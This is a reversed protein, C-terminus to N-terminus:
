RAGLASGIEQRSSIGLKDYTAHLHSEITKITLFLAQAIERNTMGSAAMEAVRRESPTLADVGTPTLRRLKEGTAELEGHARAAVGMAGGRRALELARRLPERAETRRGSRRVLIGLDLLAQAHELRAPSAELAEVAERLLEVGRESGEVTGLAALATGVASPTGWRRAWDLHSEALAVAEEREGLAALARGAYAGAPTGVSGAIGWREMRRTLEVLDSAAERARGQALRLAGRSFLPPGFWFTDPLEGGLGSRVM